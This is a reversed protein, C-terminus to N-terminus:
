RSLYRDILTAKLQAADQTQVTELEPITQFGLPSRGYLWTAPDRGVILSHLLCLGDPPAPLLLKNAPKNWSCALDAHAVHNRDCYELATRWFFVEGQRMADDHTVPSPIVLSGSGTSNAIEIPNWCKHRLHQQFGFM